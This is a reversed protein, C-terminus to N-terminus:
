FSWKVELGLGLGYTSPLLVASRTYYTIILQAELGQFRRISTKQTGRCIGGPNSNERGKRKDRKRKGVTLLRNYCCVMGLATNPEMGSSVWPSTKPALCLSAM